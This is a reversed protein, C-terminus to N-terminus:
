TIVKGVQQPCSGFLELSGSGSIGVQALGTWGPGAVVEVAEVAKVAEVPRDHASLVAGGCGKGMVGVGAVVGCGSGAWVGWGASGILGSNTLLFLITAM